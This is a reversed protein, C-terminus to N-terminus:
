YNIYEYVNCNDKDSEDVWSVMFDGSYGTGDCDRCTEFIRSSECACRNIDLIKDVEPDDYDGIFLDKNTWDVMRISKDRFSM